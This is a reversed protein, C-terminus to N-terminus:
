YDDPHGDSLSGSDQEIMYTRADEQELEEYIDAIERNFESFEAKEKFYNDRMTDDLAKIEAHTLFEFRNKNKPMIVPRILGEYDEKNSIYSWIKNPFKDKSGRYCLYSCIHANINRMKEEDEEDEALPQLHEKSVPVCLMTLWSKHSYCKQCHFCTNM